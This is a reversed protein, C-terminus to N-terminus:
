SSCESLRVWEEQTYIAYPSTASLYSYIADVAKVAAKAENITSTEIIVKRLSAQGVIFMQRKSM